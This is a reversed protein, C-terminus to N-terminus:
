FDSDKSFVLWRGQVALNLGSIREDSMLRAAIVRFFGEEMDTRAYVKLTTSPLDTFTLRLSEGLAYSYVDAAQTIDLNSRELDLAPQMHVSLIKLWPNDSHPKAHALELVACAHAMDNCTLGYVHAHQDGRGAAYKDTWDLIRAYHGWLVNEDEVESAQTTWVERTAVALALDVKKLTYMGM